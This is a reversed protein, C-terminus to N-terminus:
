NPCWDLALWMPVVEVILLSLVYNGM